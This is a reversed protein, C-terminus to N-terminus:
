KFMLVIEKIWGIISSVISLGYGIFMFGLGITMPDLVKEVKGEINAENITGYSITPVYSTTTKVATSTATAVQELVCDTVDDNQSSNKLYNAHASAIQSIFFSAVIFMNLMYNKFLKVM